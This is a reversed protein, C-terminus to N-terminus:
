TPCCPGRCAQRRGGPCTTGSAAESCAASRTQWAALHAEKSAQAQLKHHRKPHRCWLCVCSLKTSKQAQGATCQVCLGCHCRASPQLASLLLEQLLKGESCQWQRSLQTSGPTPWQGWSPAGCSTFACRFRQSCSCWEQARKPAIKAAMGQQRYNKAAQLSCKHVLTRFLAALRLEASKSTQLTQICNQACHSCCAGSMHVGQAQEVRSVAEALRCYNVARLCAVCCIVAAVQPQPRAAAQWRQAHDVDSKSSLKLGVCAGRSHEQRRSAQM